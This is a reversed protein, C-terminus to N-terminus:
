WSTGFEVTYHFIQPIFKSKWSDPLFVPIVAISSPSGGSVPITDQLPKEAPIGSILCRFFIYSFSTPLALSWLDALGPMCCFRAFIPFSFWLYLMSQGACIHFGGEWGTGVILSLDSFYVPDSIEQCRFAETISDEWFEDGMWIIVSVEPLTRCGFWCCFHFGM